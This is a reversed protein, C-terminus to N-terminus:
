QKQKIYAKYDDATGDPNELQWDILEEVKLSFGKGPKVGLLDALEKGNILPKLEYINELNEKYIFKYLNDMKEYEKQDLILYKSYPWLMGVKRIWRGVFLRTLNLHIALKSGMVLIKAEEAIRLPM